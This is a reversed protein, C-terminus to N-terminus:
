GSDAVVVAVFIDKGAQQATGGLLTVHQNADRGAAVALIDELGVLHGMFQTHADDRHSTGATALHAFASAQQEVYGAGVGWADLLAVDHQAMDDALQDAPPKPM